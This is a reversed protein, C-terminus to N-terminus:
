MGFHYRLVDASTKCALPTIVYINGLKSGLDAAKWDQACIVREIETVASTGIPWNNKM